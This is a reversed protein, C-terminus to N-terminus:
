EHHMMPKMVIREFLESEKLVYTAARNYTSPKVLGDYMEQTLADPSQKVSLVWQDFDEQTTAKAAFVMGAFGEGSLNASSGRFTGLEDAILHLKTKMGPMAYIQGGLQPIWFSNMPADATIEFVLPVKEPFQITNVTAINQEPYIFLWKWRLAVVQITMPKVPSDIPKFPDLEHSSRWTIVSLVIIILCPVGWWITELVRSHAWDPSYTAKKNSERYKWSFLITMVIAPIVVICMLLVSAVMLDREKMGILGKPNLVVFDGGKLLLVAWEVIVFCLFVFVAVQIIRKIKM